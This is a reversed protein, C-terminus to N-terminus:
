TECAPFDEAADSQLCRSRRSRLPDVSHSVCFRERIEFARRAEKENLFVKQWRTRTHFRNGFGFFKREKREDTDKHQFHLAYTMNIVNDTVFGVLKTEELSAL